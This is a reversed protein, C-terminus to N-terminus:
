LDRLSVERGIRAEPHPRVPSEAVHMLALVVADRNLPVTSRRRGGDTTAVLEQDLRGAPWASVCIAAIARDRPM